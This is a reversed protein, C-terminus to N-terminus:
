VADAAEGEADAMAEATAAYVERIGVTGWRLDTSLRSTAERAPYDRSAEYEYIPGDCFAALRDRAAATGVAPTEAEPSDFGLEDASPLPEGTVEALDAEGPAPYPSAKERDHWKRGFYTFVSYPEGENTTISGPEHCLADDHAEPTLGADDLADRVRQDRRRALGSYDRNWDVRGAGYDAAMEPLVAAPDGRATLLDSGRERYEERLADLADLMVRVRPPSAYELVADDFVFVPVVAGREAAAALGANDPVRLDRRHWFLPM